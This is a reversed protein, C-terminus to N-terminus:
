LGSELQQVMNTVGNAVHHPVTAGTGCEVWDGLEWLSRIQVFAPIALTEAATLPRVEAYGRLFADCCTKMAPDKITDDRMPWLFGTLDYTRYGVGALSFDFVVLGGDNFFCNGQHLDGHIPGFAPAVEVNALIEALRDAFALLRTILEPQEQVYPLLLRVPSHVLRDIDYRREEGTVPLEDSALHMKALAAGLKAANPESAPWEIGGEAWEYVIFPRDQVMLIEAGDRSPVAAAVPLHHQKLHKLLRVEFEVWALKDAYYPGLHKAVFKGSGSEIRYVANQAQGQGVLTATPNSLSYRESIVAAVAGEM